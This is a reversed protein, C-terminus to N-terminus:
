ALFGVALGHLDFDPRALDEGSKVIVAATERM